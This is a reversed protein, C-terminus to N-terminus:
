GSLDYVIYTAWNGGNPNFPEVVLDEDTQEACPWATEDVVEGDILKEVVAHAAFYVPDTDDDVDSLDDLDVEYTFETVNAHTMSYDFRGVKPNNRGGTPFGDSSPALDLHTETLEWGDETEYTVDFGEDTELVTVFGVPIDQGACLEYTETGALVVQAGGIAAAEGEYPAGFRTDNKTALVNLFSPFTLFVDHWCCVDLNADTIGVANGETTATVDAYEVEATTFTGIGGVFGWNNTLGEQSFAVLGGGGNVHAAVDGSRALLADSEADTIGGSPTEQRSSSVVLLEYDSFTAAAVAAAGSIYTVTRSTGLGANVTTWFDNVDTSGTTGAVVLIGSAGNTVNSLVDEVLPVYTSSGGHGSPAGDEADIGLLAVPGGASSSQAKVTPVSTLAPIGGFGVLTGVAATKLLSRRNVGFSTEEAGSGSETYEVKSINGKREM